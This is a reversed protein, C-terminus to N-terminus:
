AEDPRHNRARAAEFCLDCIMTVGAFAESADNWGRQEQRVRECEACWAYQEDSDESSTPVRNPEVFGLGSGRVLHKCVFTPWRQGHTGCHVMRTGPPDERPM